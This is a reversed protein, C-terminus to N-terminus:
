LQEGRFTRSQSEIHASPNMTNRNVLEICFSCRDSRRTTGTSLRYKTRPTPKEYLTHASRFRGPRLKKKRFVSNFCYFAERGALVRIDVIACFRITALTIATQDSYDFHFFICCRADDALCKIPRGDASQIAQLNAALPFSATWSSIKETPGIRTKSRRLRLTSAQVRSTRTRSCRTSVNSFCNKPMSM